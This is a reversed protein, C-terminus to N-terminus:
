TVIFNQGSRKVLWLPACDCIPTTKKSLYPRYMAFKKGIKVWVKQTPDKLASLLTVIYKSCRVQYMDMDNRWDKIIFRQLMQKPKIFFGLKTTLIREMKEHTNEFGESFILVALAM